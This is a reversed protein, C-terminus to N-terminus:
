LYSELGKKLVEEGAKELYRLTQPNKHNEYHRRRAYPVGGVKAPKGNGFIVEISDGDKEIRGSAKLNGTLEPAKMVALDKINHGMLNLARDIRALEVEAVQKTRDKFTYSIKIDATITTRELRLGDSQM